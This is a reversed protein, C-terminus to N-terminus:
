KGKTLMRPVRVEVKGKRRKGGRGDQCQGGDRSRAIGQGQGEALGQGRGEKKPDQRLVVTEICSGPVM